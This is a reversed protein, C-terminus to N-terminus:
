RLTAICICRSSVGIGLSQRQPHIGMASELAPSGAVRPVVFGSCMFWLSFDLAASAAVNIIVTHLHCWVAHQLALQPHIVWDVRLQVCEVGVL